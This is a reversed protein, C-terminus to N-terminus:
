VPENVLRRALRTVSIGTESPARKLCRFVMHVLLRNCPWKAFVYVSRFPDILANAQKWSGVIM